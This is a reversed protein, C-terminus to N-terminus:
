CGLKIFRRLGTPIIISVILVSVICRGDYAGTQDQFLISSNLGKSGVLAAFFIPQAMRQAPGLFTGMVHVQSLLGSQQWSLLALFPVHTRPKDPQQLFCLYLFSKIKFCVPTARIAGSPLAFFVFWQSVVDSFRINFSAGQPAM